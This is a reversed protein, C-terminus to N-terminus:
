EDAADSTYLLCARNEPCFPLDKHTGHLNRPYALDVELIYGVPSDDDVRWCDKPMTDPDVWQFGDYPLHQQMAWGYLNNVDYYQLYSTNTLRNDDTFHQQQSYHTLSHNFHTHSFFTSFLTWYPFILFIPRAWFVHM